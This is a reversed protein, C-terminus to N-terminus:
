GNRRQPHGPYAHCDPYGRREVRGEDAARYDLGRDATAQESVDIVVADGVLNKLPIRDAPSGGAAFHLPADLHTGGHEPTCFSYASYFYGQENRGYALETLEFESPSTPWFLTEDDYAYSLDVLM